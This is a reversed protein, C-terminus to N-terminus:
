STAAGVIDWLARILISVIAVQEALEMTPAQPHSPAQSPLLPLHLFGAPVTPAHHRMLYLTQNCMYAGASLSLVLPYGADHVKELLPRLPLTSFYGDPGGPVVPEDHHVAQRNDPVTSDLLNIGIRELSPVLRGGAQGLSLVARPRYQRLIEPVQRNVDERSTALEVRALYPWDPLARAVERSANQTDEGFPDFYTLLIVRIAAKGNGYLGTDLLAQPENIGRSRM